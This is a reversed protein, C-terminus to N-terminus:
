AEGLSIAPGNSACFGSANGNACSLQSFATTAPLAVWGCLQCIPPLAVAESFRVLRPCAAPPIQAHTKAPAPVHDCAAKSYESGLVTYATKGYTM